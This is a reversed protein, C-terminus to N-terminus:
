PNERDYAEDKAVLVFDLDSPEDLGPSIYSGAVAVGLWADDSSIRQRLRDLFQSHPVPRTKEM